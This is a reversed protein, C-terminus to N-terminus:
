FTGGIAIQPVPRRDRLDENDPSSPPVGAARRGRDRQSSWSVDFRLPGFPLNLRLGAGAVYRVADIDYYADSVRLAFDRIHVFSPREWVNGADAFLEVGFPGALPMRLEINALLMALGGTSQVVNESYGRITNVGGLRFRDDLPVRQLRPDLTVVPTFVRAKGFPDIAGARLRMALVSTSTRGVPLYWSLNGITRTFSSTGRLPGGAIEGSFSADTGRFPNIPDDRTDRELTLQLRHTSYFPILTDKAAGFKTGTSDFRQQVYANDQTVVLRTYRRYDRRVQFTVGRTDARRVYDTNSRDHLRELYVTVSGRRRQRLLWPDYLTADGRALLFRARGDLALRSTVIAQLGRANVNRSGWTGTFRFREATGSGVGADLWRPKRERVRLDFEVVRNTSDPSPQMQVQSFLGTNYMQTISEQVESEKYWDGPKFLVERLVLRPKIRSEAPSSLRVDGFRYRPGEDVFYEVAILSDRADAQHRREALASVDPLYGHERCDQAIRSTDAVLYLPNFPKGTKAYLHRRVTQEPVHALGSLRVDAIRYRPGETIVYTVVVTNRSRGPELRANARADLFGHQRCAQEIAATDAKVFDLRLLAKKGWPWISPRRTKTAATLEKRPVHRAGQYRVNEITKLEAPFPAQAVAPRPALALLAPGLLVAVLVAFRARVPHAPAQRRETM